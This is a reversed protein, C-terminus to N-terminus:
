LRQLLSLRTRLGNRCGQQALSFGHFYHQLPVKTIVTKDGGTLHKM